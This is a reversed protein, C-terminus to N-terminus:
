RWSECLLAWVSIEDNRFKGRNNVQNVYEFALVLKMM